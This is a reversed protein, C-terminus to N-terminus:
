LGSEVRPGLVFAVLRGRPEKKLLAVAVPFVLISWYPRGALGSGIVIGTLPLGLLLPLVLWWTAAGRQKWLAVMVVLAGLVGLYAGTMQFVSGLGGAGFLPPERGHAALLPRVQSIHWAYFALAFLTAGIWPLLARIRHQRSAIFAAGIGGTILIPLCLERVLAAALALACALGFRSKGMALMSGLVLPLAWFEVLGWGALSGAHAFAVLAWILVAIGAIPRYNAGVLVGSLLVVVLTGSSSYFGTAKWFWFITPLRFYQIRGTSGGVSQLANKMAPYYGHGARMLDVTRQYTITDTSSEITHHGFWLWAAGVLVAGMAFLLWEQRRSM